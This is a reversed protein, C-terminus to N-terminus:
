RAECSTGLKGDVDEAVSALTQFEGEALAPVDKLRRGARAISVGIWGPGVDTRVDYLGDGVTVLVWWSAAAAGSNSVHLTVAESGGSATM